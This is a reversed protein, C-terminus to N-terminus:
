LREALDLKTVERMSMIFMSPHRNSYFGGNMAEEVKRRVIGAHVSVERDIGLFHCFLIEEVIKM